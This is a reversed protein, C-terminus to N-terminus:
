ASFRVRRYLETLPVAIDLGPLDLVGDTQASAVWAGGPSRRYVTAAMATQELLIYTRLSPLAAYDALKEVRDTAATDDSLVEFIAFADDLTRTTQDVAASCVLIDPSRVKGGCRLRMEQVPEFASAALLRLLAIMTDEVIRQHAVSGGTIPIIARGDFEHKGEQRDEWALFSDLTLPADLVTDM